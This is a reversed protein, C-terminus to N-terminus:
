SIKRITQFDILSHLLSYSLINKNFEIFVDITGMNFKNNISNLNFNSDVCIILDFYYLNNKLRPIACLFHINFNETLYILDNLQLCGVMKINSSVTNITHSNELFKLDENTFEIKHKSYFELYFVKYKHDLM